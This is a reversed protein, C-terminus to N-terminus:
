LWSLKLYFGTQVLLALCEVISGDIRISKRSTHSIQLLCIAVKRADDHYNFCNFTSRETASLTIRSVCTDRGFKFIDSGRALNFGPYSDQCNKIIWIGSKIGCAIVVFEDYDERVTKGKRARPMLGLFSVRSKWIPLYQCPLHVEFISPWVRHWM